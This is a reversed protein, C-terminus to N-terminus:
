AIPEIGHRKMLEIIESIVADAKPYPIEFTISRSGIDCSPNESIIQLSYFPPEKPISCDKWLLMEKADPPMM